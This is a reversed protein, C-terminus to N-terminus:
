RRDGCAMLVSSEVLHGIVAPQSDKPSEFDLCCNCCGSVGNSNAM